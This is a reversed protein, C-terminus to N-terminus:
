IRMDGASAVQDPFYLGQFRCGHSVLKILGNPNPIVQPSKPHSPIVEGGENRFLWGLCSVDPFQKRALYALDMHQRFIAFHEAKQLNLMNLSQGFLHRRIQHDYWGQLEGNTDGSPLHCAPGAASRLPLVQAFHHRQPQYRSGGFSNNKIPFKIYFWSTNSTCWRQPLCNRHSLCWSVSAQDAFM